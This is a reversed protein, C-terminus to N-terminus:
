INETNSGLESTSDNKLREVEKLLAQESDALKQIKEFLEGFAEFDMVVMHKAGLRAGSFKCLLIPLSFTGASEQRIKNLWERKVGLQKEGGYGVKAEARIRLNLSPIYGSVDGALLPEGMVTGIAGSGAVRKWNSDPILEELLRASEREWQAGKQRKGKASVRPKKKPQEETTM